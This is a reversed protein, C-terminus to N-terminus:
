NFLLVDYLITTNGTTKHQLTLITSYHRVQTVSIFFFAYLRHFRVSIITLYQEIEIPNMMLKNKEKKKKQKSDYMDYFVLM